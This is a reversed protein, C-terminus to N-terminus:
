VGTALLLVGVLRYFTTYRVRPRLYLAVADRLRDAANRTKEEPRKRANWVVLCWAIAAVALAAAVLVANGIPRWSLLRRATSGSIVSCTLMASAALWLAGAIAFRRTQM